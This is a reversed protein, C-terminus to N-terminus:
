VRHSGGRVAKGLRNTTGATQTLTPAKRSRNAWRPPRHRLKRTRRSRRHGARASLGKKIGAGRHHLEFVAVINQNSDTIALGTCKSGPDVSLTHDTTKPDVVEHKLIITFPYRKYVAAKGESLLRRASAPHCPELVRKKTDLVAVKSM